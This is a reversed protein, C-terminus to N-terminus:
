TRRSRRRKTCIVLLAAFWAFEELARLIRAIGRGDAIALGVNLGCLIVLLVFVVQLVLYGSSSIPRRVKLV